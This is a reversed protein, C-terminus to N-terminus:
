VGTKNQCLTSCRRPRKCIRRTLVQRLGGMCRRWCTTHKHKDQSQWLRALSTAARLELSKAQQRRAIDLGQRIRAEAETQAEASQALQSVGTLRCLEAEYFRVGTRAVEEQAEALLRLGEDPQGAEGYAQALLALFYPRLNVAGTAVDM